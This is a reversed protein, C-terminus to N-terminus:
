RMLLSCKLIEHADTNQGEPGYRKTVPQIDLMFSISQPHEVSYTCVDMVAEVAPNVVITRTGQRYARLASNPINQQHEKLNGIELKGLIM